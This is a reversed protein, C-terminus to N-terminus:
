KKRAVYITICYTGRAMQMREYMPMLIRDLTTIPHTLGFKINMALSPKCQLRRFYDQRTEPLNDWNLPPQGTLRRVFYRLWHVPRLSYVSDDSVSYELSLGCSELYNNITKKSFFYLHRPVDERFLYRSTTSEFNTVLFIFVGQKKLIHSVKKFYSMPDHVHELVAWATVADYRESNGPMEPLPCRFVPFDSIKEANPAVEVGEVEWGMSRTQRAFGGNACGVDLLRPRENEPSKAFRLYAAERKYRELHFAPDRDFENFFDKPYYRSIEAFKPRPNVFGLGCSTCEVVQFFEEPFYWTDPMEYVLRQQTSGCLNCSVTELHNSSAM